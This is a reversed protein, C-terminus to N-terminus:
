GAMVLFYTNVYVHTHPLGEKNHLHGLLPVSQGSATSYGESSISSFWRSVIRHWTSQSSGAHAPLNSWNVWQVRHSQNNALLELHKAGATKRKFGLWNSGMVCIGFVVETYLNNCIILSARWKQRVVRFLTKNEHEKRYLM